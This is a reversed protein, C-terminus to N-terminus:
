KFKSIDTIQDEINHELYDNHEITKDTGMQEERELEKITEGDMGFEEDNLVNPDLYKQLHGM